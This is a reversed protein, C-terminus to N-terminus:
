KKKKDINMSKVEIDRVKIKKENKKGQNYVVTKTGGVKVKYKYQKKKSGATTEQITVIADKAKDYNESFAKRAASSPTSSMYRGVKKGNKIMTFSRKEKKAGGKMKKNHSKKKGHKMGGQVSKSSM